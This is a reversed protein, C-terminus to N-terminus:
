FRFSTSVGIVFRAHDGAGAVDRLAPTIVLNFNRFPAISLGLALDQGTWETIFSVPTAIRLAISGFPNVNARDDEIDELTRFQGNGLGATVAVRSFPKDIDDRTRFIKTVTGYVSDDFDVQGVSAFGNWGLAVSFDGPFQRHLKLNFGGTGFERNNGFSAFTYSLEVGVNRRADGLGIGVGIAGDQKDSDRVDEQYGAAIFITNNDAGYGSPNAVTIAPSGQFVNGFGRITQFSRLRAQLDAISEPSPPSVVEEPATPTTAVPSPAVIYQAIANGATPAPNEGLAVLAQYIFTSVEARTAAQNPNLRDAQPYNVILRNELAAAVSSRDNDPISAADALYTPLDEPTVTTAVLNLGQVLSSLAQVRSIPQNPRFTNDSYKPLFGLQYASRIAEAAWFDPPVDTFDVAEPLTGPTARREFAQQILAAFQARTIPRDPQFRGDPFGEAVQQAALADIVGEAWHGGVDVLGIAPDPPLPQQALRVQEPQAFTEPAAMNFPTAAQRDGIQEPVPNASPTQRLPRDPIEAKFSTDASESTPAKPTPSIQSGSLTEPPSIGPVAVPPAPEGIPALEDVLAEEIAPSAPNARTPLDQTALATLAGIALFPARFPTM